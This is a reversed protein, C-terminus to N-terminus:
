KNELKKKADRLQELTMENNSTVKYYKYFKDRDIEKEDLLNNIETILELIEKQEEESPLPM